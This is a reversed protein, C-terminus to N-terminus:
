ILRDLMMSLFLVFLYLLSYKFTKRSLQESYNRYLKLSLYTFYGGLLTATVLYVENFMGIFYPMLSTIFLIITYIVINLRTYTSGKVVPLMPVGAKKYDENKYLALAWFHPPTWLFIILFLVVSELSISSTVAAWGIMPPFAGAAGGIVINQPTRRKLWITYIFVYFLIASLLLLAAVINVALLMILVSSFASIVAFEIASNKCVRGAPIPRNKTRDMISDIDSEYWMNIAGAAGSGLSICFIAILAVFPHIEGPALFMGVGGTFVVLTMVRPKLLSFFDRVSSNYINSITLVADM